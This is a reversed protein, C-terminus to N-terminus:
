SYYNYIKFIISFDNPIDNEKKAIEIFNNNMKNKM